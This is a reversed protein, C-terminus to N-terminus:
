ELKLLGRSIGVAGYKQAKGFWRDGLLQRTPGDEALRIDDVFGSWRNCVAGSSSLSACWDSDLRGWDGRRIELEVRSHAAIGFTMVGTSWLIDGDWCFYEESWVRAEISWVSMWIKVYPETRSPITSPPAPAPKTTRMLSSRTRHHFAVVPACLLEKWASFEAWLSDIWQSDDM